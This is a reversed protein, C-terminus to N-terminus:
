ERQGALCLPNSLKLYLHLERVHFVCVCVHTWVSGENQLDTWFLKWKGTKVEFWSFSQFTLVKLIEDASLHKKKFYELPFHWDYDLKNKM